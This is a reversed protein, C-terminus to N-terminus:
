TDLTRLFAHDINRIYNDNEFFGIVAGDDCAALVSVNYQLPRWYKRVFDYVQMRRSFNTYPDTTICPVSTWLKDRAVCCGYRLQPYVYIPTVGYGYRNYNVPAAGPLQGQFLTDIKDFSLSISQGNLSLARWGIASMYILSGGYVAADISIATYDVGLPRLYVDLVGDPLQVFTGTLIYIEETTGILIINEGVKKAWMFIETPAGSFKIPLRSDYSDPSNIESFYITSNTFYLVRQYFQSIIALIDDPLDAPRLSLLFENLTIGLTLADIDSLHDEFTGYEDYRMVKVLYFKDLNGGRRFIWIENTQPEVLTPDQPLVITYSSLVYINSTIPGHPSKGVYAGNSLVNIQTYEYTGNLLSQDSGYFHINNVSYNQVTTGVITIRIGKITRWNLTNDFGYRLFDGRRATLTIFPNIANLFPNPTDWSRWIFGYWNDVSVGPASPIELLLGVSVFYVKTADDPKIDLSFTDDDNGDNDNVFTLSDFPPYDDSNTNEIVARKSAAAGIVLTDNTVTLSAAEYAVFHNLSGAINLIASNEVWVSPGNGTNTPGDDPKALGLNTINVTDDKLRLNGSAILGFNFVSSFAARTASGGTGILTRTVDFDRFVEGAATASYIIRHTNIFKSYLSHVKNTFAAGQKQTGGGLVLAGNQNLTVADMKLLCNKKGNIADNSPEWGASFDSIKIQPM